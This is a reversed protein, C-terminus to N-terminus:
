MVGMNYLVVCLVALVVGMAVMRAVAARGPGPQTM